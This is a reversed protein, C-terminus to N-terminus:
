NKRLHYRALNSQSLIGNGIQSVLAGEARGNEDEDGEKNDNTSLIPGDTDSDNTWHYGKVKM